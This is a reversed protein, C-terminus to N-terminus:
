PAVARQYHDPSLQLIARCIQDPNLQANSVGAEVCSRPMGYVACTDASQTLVAGGSERVAKAGQTGDHGIGTLVVALTAAGYVRACSCFLEDVSPKFVLQDPEKTVELLVRTSGVRRTRLHQHGRGVYVTGPLVPMQDEAHVVTLASGLQIRAAFSETFTPPMHQAVFIPVPLDAPLGMVIREVLGPGGTSSGIAVADFRGLDFLPIQDMRVVVGFMARDGHGDQLLEETRHFRVKAERRGGFDLCRCRGRPPQETGTM